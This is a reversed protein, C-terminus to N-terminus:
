PAYPAAPRSPNQGWREGGRCVRLGLACARHLLFSSHPGAALQPPADPEAGTLRAVEAGDALLVPELEMRGIESGTAGLAAAHQQGPMGVLWLSLDDAARTTM